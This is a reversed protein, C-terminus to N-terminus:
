ALIIIGGLEIQKIRLSIYFSCPLNVNRNENKNKRTNGTVNLIFNSLKEIKDLLCTCARTSNEAHEDAVSISKYVNVNLTHRM